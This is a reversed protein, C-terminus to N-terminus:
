VPSRVARIEVEREIATVGEIFKLTSERDMVTRPLSDYTLVVTGTDAVTVANIVLARSLRAALGRHEQMAPRAASARRIM